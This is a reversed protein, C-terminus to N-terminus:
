EVEAFPLPIVFGHVLTQSGLESQNCETMGDIRLNGASGTMSEKRKRSKPKRRIDKKVNSLM